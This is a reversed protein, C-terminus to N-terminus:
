KVVSLKKIDGKAKDAPVLELNTRGIIGSIGVSTRFYKTEGGRLEFEKTTAGSYTTNGIAIKHKGPAVDTYFVNGPSSYGVQEGDLLISPKMLAGYIGPLRYFYIRGADPPLEPIAAPDFSAAGPDASTGLTSCGAMLFASAACTLALLWSRRM